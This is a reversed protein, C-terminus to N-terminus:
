VIGASAMANDLSYMRLRHPKSAFAELVAGGVRRTPSNADALEPHAAEIDRLERFLADYAADEIQPDDLVYYRYNHYHLVERLERLRAAITADPVPREESPRPRLPAEQDWGVPPASGGAGEVPTPM